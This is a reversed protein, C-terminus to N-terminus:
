SFFGGRYLGALIIEQMVEHVAYENGQELLNYRALMRDFVRM